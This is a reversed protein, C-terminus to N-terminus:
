KPYRDADLDKVKIPVDTEELDPGGRTRHTVSTFVEQLCNERNQLQNQPAQTHSPAALAFSMRM